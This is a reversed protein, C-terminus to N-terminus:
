TNLDGDKQCVVQIVYVQGTQPEAGEGLYHIYHVGTAMEAQGVEWSHGCM